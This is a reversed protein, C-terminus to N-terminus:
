SADILRYLERELRLKEVVFWSLVYFAPAVAMVVPLLLFSSAASAIYFAFPTANKSGPSIPVEIEAPTIGMLLM